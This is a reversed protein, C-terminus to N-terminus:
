SKLTRLSHLFDKKNAFSRVDKGRGTKKLDRQLRKNPIESPQVPSPAFPLGKSRKIETYFLIIAQSPKIGQAHLIQEAERRLSPDIRQQIRSLSM